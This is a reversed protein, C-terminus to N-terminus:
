NVRMRIKLLMNSQNYLLLEEALSRLHVKGLGKLIKSLKWDVKMLIFSILVEYFILFFIVKIFILFKFLVNNFLRYIMAKKKYNNIDKEFAERDFIFDLLFLKLLCYAKLLVDKIIFLEL